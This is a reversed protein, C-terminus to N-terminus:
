SAYEGLSTNATMTSSSTMISSNVLSGPPIQAMNPQQQQLQPHRLQELVSDPLTPTLGTVTGPLLNSPAAAAGPNNIPNSPKAAATSLLAAAAAAAPTSPSLDPIFKDVRMGAM